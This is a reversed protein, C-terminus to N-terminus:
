KSAGDMIGAVITKVDQAGDSGDFGLSWDISRKDDYRRSFLSALGVPCFKVGLGEMEFRKEACLYGDEKNFCFQAGNPRLGMSCELYKRSRLSFRGSGVISRGQPVKAGFQQLFNLRYRWDSEIVPAGIYDYELFEDTWAKPNIIFGDCNYVLIFRSTCLPLLHGIHLDMMWSWEDSPFTQYFDIGHIQPHERGIVVEGEFHFHKRQWEIVKRMRDPSAEFDIMVSKVPIHKIAM